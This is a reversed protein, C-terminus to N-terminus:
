VSDMEHGCIKVLLIDLLYLNEGEHNESLIITDEEIKEISTYLLKETEINMGDLSHEM